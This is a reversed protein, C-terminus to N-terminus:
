KIKELKTVIIYGLSVPQFLVEDEDVDNTNVYPVLLNFEAGEVDAFIEDTEHIAFGGNKELTEKIENVVNEDMRIIKKSCDFGLHLAGGDGFCPIIYSIEYLQTERNIKGLKELLSKYEQDNLKDKLCFIDDALESITSSM